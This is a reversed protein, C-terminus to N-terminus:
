IFKKGNTRDMVTFIYRTVVGKMKGKKVCKSLLDIGIMLLGIRPAIVTLCDYVYIM